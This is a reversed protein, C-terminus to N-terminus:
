GALETMRDIVKGKKAERFLALAAATQTKGTDRSCLM